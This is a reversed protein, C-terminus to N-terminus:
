LGRGRAACGRRPGRGDRPLDRPPMTRGDRHDWLELLTTSLLPLAGPEGLVEGVLDDVLEPEVTIGVRQAPQVIARRYEDASMPGVLVHNAALLDALRPDDACRGYYDARIALVVVVKGRPDTAADILAAIFAAREQEDTCVTFAEEFADAIVVLREGDGLVGNLAVLPVPDKAVRELTPKPLATWLARDLERLPHEGPRLLAVTWRESGPLVGSALGPILGARVV